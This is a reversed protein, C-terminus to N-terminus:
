GSPARDGTIGTGGFNSGGAGTPTGNVIQSTSMGSPQARSCVPSTTKVGVGSGAPNSVVGSTKSGAGLERLRQKLRVIGDPVVSNAILMLLTGSDFIMVRLNVTGGAIAPVNSKLAVHSAPAGGSKWNIWPPELSEPQSSPVWLKAPAGTLVCVTESTTR